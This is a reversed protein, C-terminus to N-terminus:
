GWRTWLRKRERERWRLEMSSQVSVYRGGERLSRIRLLGKCISSYWVLGAGGLGTERVLISGDDNLVVDAEFRASEGDEIFESVATYFSGRDDYM